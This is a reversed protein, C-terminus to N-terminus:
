SELEEAIIEIWVNRSCGLCEYQDVDRSRGHPDVIVDARDTALRMDGGCAPCTLMLTEADFM